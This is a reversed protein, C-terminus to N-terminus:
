SNREFIYDINKLYPAASMAEELEATTVASQSFLNNTAILSSKSPNRKLTAKVAEYAKQRTYGKSILLDLLNQSYITGASMSLNRKIASKSVMLDNILSTVKLLMYHTIHFADPLIVREVSSHSIDREHWLALNEMATSAHGRLLRAMGCLRESIIPNRKHPMASSGIQDSRFREEVEGVETRQLSRIELAMREIMGGVLALAMVVQAHRDRPIVQTAVPEVKLRLSELARKEVEPSLQSYTGVAGSLKGYAIGDKAAEIREINRLCEAKWGLYKLGFSTPEAHMGHTRGICAVNKYHQAKADLLKALPKLQLLIIELSEELRVSTATDVIDSSTLGRHVEKKASDPMNETFAMVFAALDHRTSKEKELVAEESPPPADLIARYTAEDMQGLEYRSKCAAKEIFAWLKYKAPENWIDLMLETQYRSIM